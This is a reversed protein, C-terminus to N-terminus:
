HKGFIWLSFRMDGYQLEHPNGIFRIAAFRSATLKYSDRVGGCFYTVLNTDTMCDGSLIYAM